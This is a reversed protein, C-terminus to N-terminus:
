YFNRAEYFKKKASSACARSIPIYLFLLLFFFTVGHSIFIIFFLPHIRTSIRNRHLSRSLESKREPKWHAFLKHM